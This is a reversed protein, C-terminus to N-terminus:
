RFYIIMALFKAYLRTTMIVFLASTTLSNAVPAPHMQFARPADRVARKQRQKGKEKEESDNVM